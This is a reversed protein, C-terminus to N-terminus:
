GAHEAMPPHTPPEPNQHASETAIQMTQARRDAKRLRDQLFEYEHLLSRTALYFRLAIDKKMATQYSRSAALLDARVTELRADEPVEAALEALLAGVLDTLASGRGAEQASMQELRRMADHVKSM